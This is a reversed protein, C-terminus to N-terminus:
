YYEHGDDLTDVEFEIRNRQGFSILGNDYSITFPYKFEVLCGLGWLIKKGHVEICADRNFEYDHREAMHPYAATVAAVDIMDLPIAGILGADVGCSGIKNGFRDLCPYEGDGHATSSVAFMVGNRTFVGNQLHRDNYHHQGSEMEERNPYLNFYHTQDLADHWENSPLVYCPDGLFYKGPPLSIRPDLITYQASM